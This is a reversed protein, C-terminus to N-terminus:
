NLGLPRLEADYDSPGFTEEEFGREIMQARLTDHAIELVELRTSLLFYQDEPLEPLQDLRAMVLERDEPAVWLVSRPGDHDASSYLADYAVGVPNIRMFAASGCVSWDHVNPGPIRWFGALHIRLMEGFYAGVARSVLAALEPRESLQERATSLYHDVLPLTEPTFDPVVGTARTVYDVCAAALDVLPEEELSSETM